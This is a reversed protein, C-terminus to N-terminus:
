NFIPRAGSLRMRREDREKKRQELLAKLAGSKRRETIVAHNHEGRISLVKRDKDRSTTARVKCRLAKSQSCAWDIDNNKVLEQTFVYGDISLQISGRGSLVFFSKPLQQQRQQKRESVIQNRQQMLQKLQGNQRHEKKVPHDHVGQLFMQSGNRLIKVSALCGYARYETCRWQTHGKLTHKRYYCHDKVYLKRRNGQMVFRVDKDPDIAHMREVLREEMLRKRQGLRRRETVIPHNHTGRISIRSGEGYSTAAAKCGLPRSQCCEWITYRERIQKRTFGYGNIILKRSRGTDVYRIDQNALLDNKAGRYTTARATCSLPRAQCCAWFTMHARENLKTFPFGEVVLQTTGRATVIYCIDMESSDTNRLAAPQEKEQKRKKLLERLVGHKRRESVVDHNHEGRCIVPGKNPPRPMTARVRCGLAKKQACNWFLYRQSIKNRVFIHNRIVM